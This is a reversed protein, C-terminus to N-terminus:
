CGLIIRDNRNICNLLFQYMDYYIYIGRKNDNNNKKQHMQFVQVTSEKKTKLKRSFLEFFTNSVIDIM